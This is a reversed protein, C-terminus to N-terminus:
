SNKLILSDFILTDLIEPMVNLIEIKLINIKNCPKM